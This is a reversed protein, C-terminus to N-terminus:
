GLRRFEAPLANMQEDIAAADSATHSLSGARLATRNCYHVTKGALAAGVEKLM